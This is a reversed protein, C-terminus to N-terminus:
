RLGPVTQSWFSSFSSFPLSPWHSRGTGALLFRLLQAQLSLGAQSCPAWSLCSRPVLCTWAGGGEGLALVQSALRSTAWSQPQGLPRPLSATTPRTLGARRHEWQPQPLGTTGSCETTEPLLLLRGTMSPQHGLPLAEAEEAQHPVHGSSFSPPHGRSALGWSSNQADGELGCLGSIVNDPFPSLDRGGGPKGSNEKKM